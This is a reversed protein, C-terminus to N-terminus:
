AHDNEISARLLYPNAIRVGEYMLQRIEQTTQDMQDTWIELIGHANEVANGRLWPGILPVLDLIKREVEPWKIIELHEFRSM